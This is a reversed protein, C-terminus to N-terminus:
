ALAYDFDSVTQAPDAKREEFRMPQRQERVAQVLEEFICPFVLVPCSSEWALDTAQNAAGCIPKFFVEEPTHELAAHLLRQKLQHLQSHTRDNAHAAVSFPVKEQQRGAPSSELCSRSFIRNLYRTRTIAIM